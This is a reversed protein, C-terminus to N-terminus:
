VAAGIQIPVRLSLVSAKSGIPTYLGEIDMVVQGPQEGSSLQVRSLKVRPEWKMIAGATAAYVRVRNAANDPQDILEPIQSGYSRRMVRTGIPTSLIDAISQRLSDIDSLARGTTNNM